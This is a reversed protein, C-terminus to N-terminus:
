SNNKYYTTLNSLGQNLRKEITQFSYSQTAIVFRRCNKFKPQNNIYINFLTPALEASGQPLGNKRCGGNARKKLEIYFM